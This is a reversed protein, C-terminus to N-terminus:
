PRPDADFQANDFQVMSEWFSRPSLPNPAELGCFLYGGGGGGRLVVFAFSDQVRLGSM